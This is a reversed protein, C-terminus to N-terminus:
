KVPVPDVGMHYVIIFYAAILAEPIESARKKIEELGGM